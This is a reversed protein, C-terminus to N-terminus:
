LWYDVRGTRGRPPPTPGPAPALGPATAGPSPTAAADHDPTTGRRASDGTADRSAGEAAQRSAADPSTGPGRDAEAWRIDLREVSLGQRELGSVLYELSARVLAQVAADEVVVRGTVQRDRVRVLVRVRGLDPPDLRIEARGGGVRVLAALEAALHRELAAATVRQPRTQPEASRLGQPVMAIVPPSGVPRAIPTVADVVPLTVEMDAGGREATPPSPPVSEGAARRATRLELGPPAIPIAGVGVAPAAPDTPPLPPSTENARGPPRAAVGDVEAFLDPAPIPLTRAPLQTPADHAPERGNPTATSPIPAPENRPPGQRRASSGVVPEKAALGLARAPGASWASASPMDLTPVTPVVTAAEDTRLGLATATVVARL